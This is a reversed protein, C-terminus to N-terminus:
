PFVYVWEKSSNGAAILSPSLCGTHKGQTQRDSGVISVLLDLYSYWYLSYLYRHIGVLLHM